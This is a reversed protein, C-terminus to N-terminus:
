PPPAISASGSGVPPHGPPLGAGSMAPDPAHSSVVGGATGSSGAAAGATSDGAGSGGPATGGQARSGDSGDSEGPSTSPAPGGRSCSVGPLLAAAVLLCAPVGRLNM